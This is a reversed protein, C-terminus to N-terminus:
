VSLINGNGDSDVLIFNSKPSSINNMVFLCSDSMALILCRLHHHELLVQIVQRKQFCQRSCHHLFEVGVSNKICNHIYFFPCRRIKSELSALYEYSGM